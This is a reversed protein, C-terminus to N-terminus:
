PLKFILDTFNSSYIELLNNKLHLQAFLGMLALTLKLNQSDFSYM